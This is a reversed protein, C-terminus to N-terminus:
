LNIFEGKGCKILQHIEGKQFSIQPPLPHFTPLEGKGGGYRLSHGEGVVRRQTKNVDPLRDGRLKPSGLAAPNILPPLTSSNSTWSLPKELPVRSSLARALGQTYVWVRTYKRRRPEERGPEWAHVHRHRDWPGWGGVWQKGLALYTQPHQRRQSVCSGFM